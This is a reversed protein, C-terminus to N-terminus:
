KKRRAQKMAIEALVQGGPGTTVGSVEAHDKDIFRQTGAYNIGDAIEIKFTMTQTKEDWAGTVFGRGPDSMFVGPYDGSKSDYTLLLHYEPLEPRNLNPEEIRMVKGAVSWTRTSVLKYATKEGDTSKVTAEMDWTGVFRDLVQLKASGKPTDEALPSSTFVVLITLVSAILRM